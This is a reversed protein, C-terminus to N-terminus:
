LTQVESIFLTLEGSCKWYNMNCLKIVELYFCSQFTLKESSIAASKYILCGWGWGMAMCDHMLGSTLKVLCPDPIHKKSRHHHHTRGADARKETQVRSISLRIRSDTPPAGPEM